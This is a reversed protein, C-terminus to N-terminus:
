LLTPKIKNVYEMLQKEKGEEIYTIKAGAKCSGDLCVETIRVIEIEMEIYEEKISSPLYIKLKVKTGASIKEPFEINIGQVDTNIDKIIVKERGVIREGNKLFEYEAYLLSEFRESHRKMQSLPKSFVKFQEKEDKNFNEM